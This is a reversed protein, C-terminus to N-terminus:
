SLKTLSWPTSRGVLSELNQVDDAYYSELKQRIDPELVVEEAAQSNFRLYIPELKLRLERLISHVPLTHTRKRIFRRVDSYLQDIKANGIKVSRNFVKFDYDSYLEPDIQAFKCIDIMIKRPDACLDEYFYVKVRDAGFIDVYRKLFNAYRGQELASLFYNINSDSTLDNSSSAGQKALEFYNGDLQMEVYEEFSMSVPINNRQRSYKYWSILRTIPDRLIFVVRAKPLFSHIRQPTGESYLYDPTAEVRLSSPEAQFFSDFMEVGDQWKAAQPQVPYDQDLFFRTEKLSTLMVDPHDGLYHYLSTTAAKTTGGIILYNYQQIDLM